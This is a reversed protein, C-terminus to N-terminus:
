ALKAICSAEVVSLLGTDSVPGASLYVISPEVPEGIRREGLVGSHLSAFDFPGATFFRGSVASTKREAIIFKNPM